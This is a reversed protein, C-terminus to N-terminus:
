RVFSAKFAKQERDNAKRMSFIHHCDGRTTYVAVTLRRTLYGVIVWRVEGYDRRTDQRVWHPGDLLAPFDAFDLGRQELARLRKQEDWSLKVGDIYIGLTYVDLSRSKRSSRARYGSLLGASTM